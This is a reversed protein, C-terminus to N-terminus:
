KPQDGDTRLMLLGTKKPLFDRMAWVLAATSVLALAMDFITMIFMGVFDGLAQLTPDADAGRGSVVAYDILGFVHDTGGCLFFRCDNQSIVHIRGSGEPLRAAADARCLSYLAM